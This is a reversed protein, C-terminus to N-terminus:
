FSEWDDSSSTDTYSNQKTTTSVIKRSPAKVEMTKRTNINHTTNKKEEKLVITDKGRFEKEDVNKVIENSINSTQTAVEQTQNAASAIQQTQQDQMTVADNIQEIGTRQEKSALEVDSILDITKTINENLTSYGQIMKSSIIKGENTKLNAKEVLTKIEKAAEASRSALNRVEQAVVAFGKGAEGATAAEVAANLSLINTQFAIQDIVVIADAIATVEENIEDMSNTTQNALDNGEKVSLIVKDAFQAMESVNETNSIITGTIEELAAATEELSAAAENSANNLVNVNELLTNSSSSLTLGVKKNESLMSTISDGLNNVGNALDLLQNKVMSNDVKNMYNYNSYQELISLVNDINKEIQTGMSDLVKKLEMLAPNDVSSSIRQCLDGKEFESLVTITEDIFQRDDEISKKTTKINSNVVKAMHGLEDESSDNLLTVDSAERNLYKFFNLLGNQFDNLPELITKKAILLAIFLLIVLAIIATIIITIMFNQIDEETKHIMININEEIEDIYAGTGVIWNWEKFKQVYSFKPHPKPDGKIKWSYKLLASGKNNALETMDKFFNIGNSDKMTSADTGNLSPNTAHMLMKTNSDNVWFYGNKAYKMKSIATLAEKQMSTTVDDIYSGTGIIWNYPKFIKVISAKFLTKSTGPKLFSYEIFAKNTRSNKLADLGLEVFPVKPTNKFTKGNLKSNIPHMLVKYNFDNIWFYGSKGYRTASVIDKIRNKLEEESLIDKYKKYEGDIISFLFNSQENIYKEVEFKIKDKATRAHYSEITKYALSVYNKLETEKNKYAEIKYAEIREQSSEKMSLISEFTLIISIITISCFVILLLKTKISLNKM